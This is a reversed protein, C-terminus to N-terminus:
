KEGQGSESDPIVGMRRMDDIIRGAYYEAGEANPHIGDDWLLPSLDIDQYWGEAIPDVVYAGHTEASLRIAESVAPYLEAARSNLYAPVLVVVKAKPFYSRLTTMYEDFAPAFVAPDRGLDNRGVDLVIYDAHFNDADFKLRDVAAPVIQKVGVISLDNPLFGRGGQADVVVNWGLKEKFVDPYRKVDPSVGNAVSDGIVLVTPNPRFFGQQNAALGQQAAPEDRQGQDQDVRDFGRVALLAVGGALALVVLLRTAFRLVARQSSRHRSMQSDGKELNFGPPGPPAV